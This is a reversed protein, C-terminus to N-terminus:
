EELAALREKEAEDAEEQLRKTEADNADTIRKLEEGWKETAIAHCYSVVSAVPVDEEGEAVEDLLAGAERTRLAALTQTWLEANGQEGQISALLKEVLQQDDLKVVATPVRPEAEEAGEIPETAVEIEKLKEAFTLVFDKCKEMLTLLAQRRQLLSGTTEASFHKEMRAAVKEKMEEKAKALVEECQEQAAETATGRTATRLVRKM